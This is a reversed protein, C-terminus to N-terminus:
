MKKEERVNRKGTHGTKKNTAKKSISVLNVSLFNDSVVVVKSNSCVQFWKKGGVRWGMVGVGGTTNKCCNFVFFM